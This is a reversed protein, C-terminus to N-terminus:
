LAPLGLARPRLDLLQPDIYSHVLLERFATRLDALEARIYFAELLGVSGRVHFGEVPALKRANFDDLLIEDAQIQKALLITSVEAVGLPYRDQAAFMEAQNQLQKVEIRAANAVEAAGPLGAGAFVV